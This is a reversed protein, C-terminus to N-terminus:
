SELNSFITVNKYYGKKLKVKTYWFVTRSAVTFDIRASLYRSKTLLHAFCSPVRGSRLHFDIHETLTEIYWLISFLDVYLWHGRYLYLIECFWEQLAEQFTLHLTYMCINLNILSIRADAIYLGPATAIWHHRLPFRLLRGQKHFNGVFSSDYIRRGLSRMRIPSHCSQRGGSIINRHEHGLPFPQHM